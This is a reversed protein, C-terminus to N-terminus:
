LMNKKALCFAIKKEYYAAENVFVPYSPEGEYYIEEEDFRLFIPDGHHLLQYDRGLFEPHIMGALEEGERPFDRSDYIDYCVVKEDMKEDKRLIDLARKLVKLTNFFISADLVGQCVPGVEITISSKVCSNIFNGEETGFWRLIKVNEYERALIKAVNASLPDDKSLVITIGMNATTTHLDILFDTDELRKKLVKAREYEYIHSDESLAEQSFSRNLDYDIYRRCEKIAKPNALLYDIAIDKLWFNERMLKKVIYIGILENGHVGGAITVNM